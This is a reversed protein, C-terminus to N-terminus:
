KSCSGNPEKEFLALILSIFKKSDKEITFPCLTAFKILKDLLQQGM